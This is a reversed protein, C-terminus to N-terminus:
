LTSVDEGGPAPLRLYPPEHGKKPPEGSAMAELLKDFRDDSM